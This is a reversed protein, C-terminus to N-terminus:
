VHPLTDCSNFDNIKEAYKACKDDFASGFARLQMMGQKLGQRAKRPYTGAAYYETCNIHEDKRNNKATIHHPHM